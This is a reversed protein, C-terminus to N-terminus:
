YQYKKCKECQTVTNGNYQTFRREGGCNCKVSITHGCSTCKWYAGYKGMYREFVGNCYSKTCKDM